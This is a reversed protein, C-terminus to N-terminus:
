TTLFYDFILHRCTVLFLGRGRSCVLFGPARVIGLLPYARATKNQM